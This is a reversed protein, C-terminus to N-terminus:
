PYVFHINDRDIHIASLHEGYSKGIGTDICFFRGDYLPLIQGVQNKDIFSTPTHGVVMRECRHFQLVEELETRKEESYKTIYDRNWQPGRNSLLSGEVVQSNGSRQRRIEVRVKQNLVTLPQYGFDQTLGGHVFLTGNIKVVSNHLALWKGM